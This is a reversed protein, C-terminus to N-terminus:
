ACVGFGDNCGAFEVYERLLDHDDPAGRHRFTLDLGAVRNREGRGDRFSVGENDHGSIRFTRNSVRWHSAAQM